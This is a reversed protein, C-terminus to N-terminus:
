AELRAAIWEANSGGTDECVQRYATVSMVCAGYLDAMERKVDEKRLVRGPLAHTPHGLWVSACRLYFEYNPTGVLVRYDRSNITRAEM